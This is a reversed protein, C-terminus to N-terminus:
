IVSRGDIMALDVSRAQLVTEEPPRNEDDCTVGIIDAKKKPELSGIQDEWKLAKAGGLTAMKLIEAPTVEPYTASLNRLEQLMHIGDNSSISDTGIAINIGAKVLSELRFRRHGM